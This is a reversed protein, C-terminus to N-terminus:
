AVCLLTIYTFTINIIYNYAFWYAVKDACNCPKLVEELGLIRPFLPIYVLRTDQTSRYDQVWVGGVLLPDPSM